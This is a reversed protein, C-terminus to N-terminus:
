SVVKSLNYICKVYNCTFTGVRKHLKNQKNNKMGKSVLNVGVLIVLHRYLAEFKSRLKASLAISCQLNKLTCVGAM